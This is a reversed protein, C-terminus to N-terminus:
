RRQEQLKALLAVMRWGSAITALESAIARSANVEARADFQIAKSLCELATLM